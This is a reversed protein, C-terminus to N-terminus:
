FTNHARKQFYCVVAFITVLLAIPLGIFPIFFSTIVGAKVLPDLRAFTDCRFMFYAAAYVVALTLVLFLPASFSASGNYGEKSKARDKENEM